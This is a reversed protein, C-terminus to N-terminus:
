RRPWPRTSRSPGSARGLEPLGALLEAPLSRLRAAVQGLQEAAREDQWPEDSALTGELRSCAVWALSGAVEAHAHRLIAGYASRALVAM